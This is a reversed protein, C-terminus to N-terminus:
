EATPSSSISDALTRQLIGLGAPLPLTGAQINVRLNFDDPAGSQQENQKEDSSAAISASVKGFLGTVATSAAKISPGTSNTDARGSGDSVASGNASQEPDINLKFNADIKEVGLATMPLLTLLPVKISMPADVTSPRDSSGEEPVLIQRTFVLDIMVPRYVDQDKYFAADLILTVQERAMRNNARVAALLPAALINQLSEGQLAEHPQSSSDNEM